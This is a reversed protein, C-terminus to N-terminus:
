RDTLTILANGRSTRALENDGGYRADLGLVM